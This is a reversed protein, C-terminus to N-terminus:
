KFFPVPSVFDVPRGRGEEEQLLAALFFSPRIGWGEIAIAAPHDEVRVTDLIDRGM